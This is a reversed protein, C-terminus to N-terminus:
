VFIGQFANSFANSKKFTGVCSPANGGIFNNSINFQDGTSAAISIGYFNNDDIPVIENPEYINNNTITAASNHAGFRIAYFTGGSFLNFFNNNDIIVRENMKTSTGAAYIASYPSTTGAKNFDNYSITVDDNGTTVATSIFVVGAGSSSCSGKIMCHTITNITADNWIRITRAGNDVKLNVITLNKSAGIKNLKGTITVKDAGDLDILNGIFDGTISVNEVTPYITLSNWSATTPQKLAAGATETTNGAIKIEIDKNTYDSHANISDFAQKLTEYTNDIDSETGTLTVPRVVSFTAVYNAGANSLYSDGGTGWSKAWFHIKYTGTQLGRLLNMKKGAYEAPKIGQYDNIEPLKVQTWM